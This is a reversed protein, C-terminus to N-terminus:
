IKNMNKSNIFDNIAKFVAVCINDDDDTKIAYGIARQVIVYSHMVTKRSLEM